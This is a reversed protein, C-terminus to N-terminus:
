KEPYQYHLSWRIGFKDTVAGFRSGWFTDNLETNISGDEKLTNFVFGLNEVTELQVHVLMSNGAIYNDDPYSDALYLHVKDKELELTAHMIKDKDNPYKKLTDADDKYHLTYTLKADFAKTYLEIAETANGKFELYPTVKM